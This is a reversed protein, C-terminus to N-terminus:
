WAEGSGYFWARLEGSDKDGRGGDVGEDDGCGQNIMPERMGRERRLERERKSADPGHILGAPWPSSTVRGDKWWPWSWSGLLAEGDVM